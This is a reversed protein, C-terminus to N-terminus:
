ETVVTVVEAGTADLDAILEEDSVKAIYDNFGDYMAAYLWDGLPTKVCLM